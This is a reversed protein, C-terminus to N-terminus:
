VTVNGRLCKKKRNLKHATLDKYLKNFTGFFNNYLLIIENFIFPIIIHCINTTTTSARIVESYIVM